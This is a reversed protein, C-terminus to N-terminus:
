ASEDITSTMDEIVQSGRASSSKPFTFELAMIRSDNVYERLYYGTDDDWYSVVFWGDEEATYDCDHGNMANAKLYDLSEGSSNPKVWVNIQLGTSDETLVIGSGDSNYSCDLGSPMTVAFDYNPITVEGTSEDYAVESDIETSAESSGEGETQASSAVAGSQSAPQGADSEGLGGVHFYFALGICAIAAIAAIAVVAGKGSKGKAASSQTGQVVRTPAPQAPSAARPAPQQPTEVSQFPTGCKYCFAEGEMIPAGCNMCYGVPKGVDEAPTGVASGCNTCFSDGDPVYAGCNPCIM